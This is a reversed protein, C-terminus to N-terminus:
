NECIEDPPCTVCIYCETEPSNDCIDSACAFTWLEEGDGCPREDICTSGTTALCKVDAVTTIDSMFASSIVIVVGVLISTITKM